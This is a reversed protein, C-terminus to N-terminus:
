RGSLYASKQLFNNKNGIKWLYSDLDIRYDEIFKVGESELKARQFDRGEGPRITIVGKSNIIRWWSLNYKKSMSHLIWSVQRAGKPNGAMDALIGFSLVKGKPIRRIINIVTRTFEDYVM